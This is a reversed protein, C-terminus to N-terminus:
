CPTTCHGLGNKEDVAGPQRRVDPRRPTRALFREAISCARWRPREHLARGVGPAAIRAARFHPQPPYNFAKHLIYVGLAALYLMVAPRAISTDINALLYAGAAGGAVGPVAIRAFLGWDVNRMLIHSAGSAGTTFVEVLRVAASARSPARGMVSVLLTSSIVGFAMGLAGDVLQAAFGIAVFIAFSRRDVGSLWELM